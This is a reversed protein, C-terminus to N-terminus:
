RVQTKMIEQLKLKFDGSGEAERDIVIGNFSEIKGISNPTVGILIQQDGVQVLVLKEKMGLPLSSVVKMGTGTQFNNQGLRKATFGLVVILGVILGLYLLVQLVQDTM